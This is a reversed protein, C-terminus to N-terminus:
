WAQNVGERRTAAGFAKGGRQLHEALKDQAAMREVHSQAALMADLLERGKVAFPTMQEHLERLRQSM